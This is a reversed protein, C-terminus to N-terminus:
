KNEDILKTSNFFYNSIQLVANLLYLRNLTNIKSESIILLNDFMFNVHEKVSLIESFISFYNHNSLEKLVNEKVKPISNYLNKECDTELTEFQIQDPITKNKVINEIRKTMELYSSKYDSILFKNIADLKLKVVSLNKLATDMISDIVDYRINKSKLFYVIRDKFFNLLDHRLNEVLIFKKYKEALINIFKELDIEVQKEYCIRIIGLAARRLGFPDKDGTPKIGISFFIFLIELKDSLALIQSNIASPLEDDAHKPHYHEQVAMYITEDYNKNRLLYGGISGQLEPFEGVMHSTLDFKCFQAAKSIKETPISLESCILKSIEVIRQVREHQSGIKNHYTVKELKSNMSEIDANLDKNYFFNADDLRPLIVKQNGKIIRDKNNPNTNDSVILFKNSIKKEKDFTSIYKQHIEMTLRLCEEPLNLFKNNFEAMYVMPWECLSTIDDLLRESVVHTLKHESSVSNLLQTIKNKRDEYDVIVRGNEEMIQQYNIANDIFIKKFNQQRHGYTFASTQLGFLKLNLNTEDLIILINRIPRIFKHNEGEVQYNMDKIFKINTLSDEIISSIENNLIKPPYKFNTTLIIKGGIQKEIFTLKAYDLKLKEIKKKLAVTPKKNDDFGLEKPILKIEQSEEDSKPTVNFIQVAIRRPTIYSKFNKEKIFKLNVLKELISTSFSKQLYLLSNPPLEETLIEILLCNKM